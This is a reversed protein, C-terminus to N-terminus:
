RTVDQTLIAGRSFIVRRAMENCYRKNMSWTFQTFENFEGVFTQRYKGPQCKPM